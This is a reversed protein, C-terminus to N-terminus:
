MWALIWIEAIFQRNQKFQTAAFTPASPVPRQSFLASVPYVIFSLRHVIFKYTIQSIITLCFVNRKDQGGSISDIIKRKQIPL